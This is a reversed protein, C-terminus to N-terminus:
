GGHPMLRALFAAIDAIRGLDKLRGKEPKVKLERLALLMAAQARAGPLKAPEGPIGGGEFAGLMEAIVADMRSAVAKSSTALHERLQGLERVLDRHLDERNKLLKKQASKSASSPAAEPPSPKGSKTARAKPSPKRKGAGPAKGKSPTKKAKKTGETAVTVM